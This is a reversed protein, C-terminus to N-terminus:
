FRKELALDIAQEVTFTRGEHWADDFAVDDRLAAHASSVEREYAKRDVPTLPSGLEERLREAAGWIKAAIPPSGTAAALAALGELSSALGFRDGLERRITLSETHLRRASPFDKRDLALTGLNNLSIGIARREGLDRKIALSEEYLTQARSLDGQHYALLGLNNLVNATGTRDGRELQLALSEELSTRAVGFDGQHYALNGLNMLVGAVASPDGRERFIALSEAYKERAFTFDGQDAALNGLGNLAQARAIPDAGVDQELASALRTRGESLHGRVLWFRQLSVALPLGGVNWELAARFNDHERELRELWRAQDPGRLEPEAEEALALFCEVHRDRYAAADGGELLRDRAYQRITELLRYRTTAGSPEVVVLSKDCLSTLLDLVEGDEVGDGVCVSEAAELTWGGAFVSLRCLVAKEDPALLDYSWDILSRLTQQRPLATRSGGTLLRFRQDLKRNIEEVSLARARAAALELALPIGDLRFCISALAPANEDTVQFHPQTQVARDIFLRVAEFCSVSVATQLQKPDPLSLSPVPYSTEGAIGLAERSSSLIRVQPCHRLLADALRASAEILHECNDLVLLLRKVKLHELLTQLLPKGPEETLGLAGAVSQPVLGPDSLPALEVFFAGGPFRELQEAAVQLSLRTKGTGGSGTLTVLRSKVLLEQLEATEKERGIFSTVQQPLNNPHTSLSKLAPFEGPLDPHLLQYVQEPRALDKLQHAGLDRLAVTPPLSDRVLDYTTQSLLTQGGHGTSLLRTVRNLPQGFYDGDRSEVAGTHLAMRVDVAIPEPWLESQLRLQADLAAEVAGVPTGFAACFADGITKFVYGDHAEIARRLLADHTALATQMAGPHSEWLKTSGEIDTFLFTVTGTPLAM